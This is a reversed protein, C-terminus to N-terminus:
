TTLAFASAHIAQDVARNRDSPEFREYEEWFESVPNSDRRPRIEDILRAYDMLLFDLRDPLDRGELFETYRKIMDEQGDRLRLRPNVM